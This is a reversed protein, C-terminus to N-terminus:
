LSPDALALLDRPGASSLSVKALLRELDLISGLEKGLEARLITAATCSKSRTWALKSRARTSRRRSCRAPAASPRGHRDPHPRACPAANIGEIRRRVAARGTGSEPRDIRRAGARRRSRLLRATGSSRARNAAHRSPLLPDRAAAGTALRGTNWVRMWRAVASPLSRLLSRTAYDSDFIWGDVDTKLCPLPLAVGSPALAERANLTELAAAVEDPLWKPPAFSAPPSTSTLSAPERCTKDPSPMVAALYNNEHSRLLQANMATGPTVIRTVERKVLKAKALKADETQDCVAVRYGKQILRAIYNEASHYPVGCMPIPMRKTRIAATLTIELERAATVADDYFLEYFDGLRFFLLANPVQQKIGHYQRMLPTSADSMRLTVNYNPHVEHRRAAALPTAVNLELFTRDGYPLMGALPRPPESLAPKVSLAVSFIGGHRCRDPLPSFTRYSRVAAATIRAPLAFGM